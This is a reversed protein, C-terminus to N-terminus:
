TSVLVSPFYRCSILQPVNSNEANMRVYQSQALFQGCRYWESCIYPEFCQIDLLCRTLWFYSTSTISIVVVVFFLKSISYESWNWNNKSDTIIISFILCWKWYLVEIITNMYEIREITNYYENSVFVFCCNWVLVVLVKEVLKIKEYKAENIM